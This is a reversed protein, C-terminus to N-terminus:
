RNGILYETSELDGDGDYVLLQVLKFDVSAKDSVWEIWTPDGNANKTIISMTSDNNNKFAEPALHTPQQKYGQLTTEGPVYIKEAM